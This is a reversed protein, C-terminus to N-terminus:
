DAPQRVYGGPAPEVESFKANGLTSRAPVQEDPLARLWAAWDAWWSGPVEHATALWREPEALAGDIWFSRKNRSVPNIVGAIHGSAALVFRVEGSILGTTRYATRWPVIHDERSALV